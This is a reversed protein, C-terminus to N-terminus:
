CWFCFFFEIFPSFVPLCVLQRNIVDYIVRMTSPHNSYDVPQCRFSYHGTLWGSKGIQLYCSQFFVKQKIGGFLFPKQFLRRCSGSFKVVVNAKRRFAKLLLKESLNEETQCEVSAETWLNANKSGMKILFSCYNFTTDIKQRRAKLSPQLYIAQNFNSKLKNM